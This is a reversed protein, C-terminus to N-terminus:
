NNNLISHGLSLGDKICMDMNIYKFAGIRGLVFLNKYSALYNNITMLNQSYNIDYVPYASDVRVVFHDNVEFRELLPLERIVQHAIELDTRKWVEDDKDCFIEVCVGTKDKPAMYPSWNKPEHLRGSIRADQLYIWHNETHYRKNLILFVCILSRYKLNQAAKRVDAPPALLSV